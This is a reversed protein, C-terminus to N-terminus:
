REIRENLKEIDLMVKRIESEETENLRALPPIPDGVDFGQVRLGTKICAALNYKTFIRNVEWLRKQLAIAEDWKKDRCLDYLRVSQKPIICAPGAMWGAGGFMMVCLPINASASFAKIRDGLRSMITLLKGTNGSADKFYRINEVQALKEYSEVSLDIKSFRPNTYMVIPVSVSRAIASFYSCIQEQTVPFYSDMIALIGQIGMREYDKAQRIADAISAHYVGAITPVRGRAASVVAEVAASRQADTLYPFEGTSGLVVLGHVGSDILHDVLQHFVNRNVIGDKGVPTILYPFVGRFQDNM